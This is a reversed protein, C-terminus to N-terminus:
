ILITYKDFNLGIQMKKLPNHKQHKDLHENLFGHNGLNEGTNDELNPVALYFQINGNSSIHYHTPIPKHYQFLSFPCIRGASIQQCVIISHKNM